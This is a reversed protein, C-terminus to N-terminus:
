NRVGKFLDIIETDKYHISKGGSNKKARRHPHHGGKTRLNIRDSVSSLQESPTSQVSSPQSLGM